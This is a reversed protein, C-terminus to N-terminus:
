LVKLLDMTTVIGVMKKRRTIIVRHVKRRLMLRSLRLVSLEEGASVVDRSMLDRATVVRRDRGLGDPESGSYFDGGEWEDLGAEKLHRVIDTQSVVGVLEGREDTVPVGTIGKQLLLEALEWLSADQDVSVVDVRMVDRARKVGDARSGNDEAHRKM